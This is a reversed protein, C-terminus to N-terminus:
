ELIKVGELATDLMYRMHKDTWHGDVSYTVQYIVKADPAIPQAPTARATMSTSMLTQGDKPRPRRDYPSNRNQLDKWHTQWSEPLSAPPRARRLIDVYTEREHDEMVAIGGVDWTPGSEDLFYTFKLALNGRPTIKQLDKPVTLELRRSRFSFAKDYEIDIEFTSFVQPHLSELTLFEQWDEFRASYTPYMFDTLTKLETLNVASQGTPVIRVLSACGGPLPLAYSLVMLDSFPMPYTRVQWKRQWGDVHESESIAPGLSTIKVQEPGVYRTLKLGKLMLDMYVRSDTFIQKTTVDDPTVLRMVGAVGSFSGTSLSGNRDLDITTSGSAEEAAWRNEDGKMVMRPLYVLHLTHLLQLSDAGKPFLDAANTKLLEARATESHRTLVDLMANSFEPFPLPLKLEQKLTATITAPMIPLRISGRTDLRALGAPAELVQRIPVAYNLNEQPSAALVVGIAKGGDDLLPGGSTGPSAAASFRIWKWRGDQAEPTDSTYLGDRLVVGEGLANGVAFVTRNLVPDRNIRLAKVSPPERLSFVVFDEHLSFKLVEAVEYVRGSQDRLFPVGTQSGVMKLFVHAASVFENPAVAFATGIPHYKDSRIAFPLLEVPLPKEYTLPDNEPKRAVVEFTAARVSKEASASLPAAEVIPCLGLLVLGATAFSHCALTRM